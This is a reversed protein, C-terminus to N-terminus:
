EPEFLSKHSLSRNWGDPDYTEKLKEQAAELQKASIEFFDSPLTDLDELPIKELQPQDTLANVIYGLGAVGAVDDRLSAVAEKAMKLDSRKNELLSYYGSMNGIDQRVQVRKGEKNTEWGTVESIETVNVWGNDYITGKLTLATYFESSGVLSMAVRSRFNIEINNAKRSAEIQCEEVSKWLLGTGNNKRCGLPIIDIEGEDLSEIEHKDLLEDLQVKGNMKNFAGVAKDVYGALTDLM